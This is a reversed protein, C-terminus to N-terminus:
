SRRWRRRMQCHSLRREGVDQLNIQGLCKLTKKHDPDTKEYLIFLTPFSSRFAFLLAKNRTNQGFLFDRGLSDRELQFICSSSANKGKVGEGFLLLMFEVLCKIKIEKQRQMVKSNKTCDLYLLCWDSNWLYNSKRQCKNRCKLLAESARYFYIMERGTKQWNAFQERENESLFYKEILLSENCNM